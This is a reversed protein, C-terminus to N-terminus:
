PDDGAALLFRDVDLLGATEVVVTTGAEEDEEPADGPEASGSGPDSSRGAPEGAVVDELGDTGRLIVVLAEVLPHELLRTDVDEAAVGVDELSAELDAPELVHSVPVSEVGRVVDVDMAAPQRDGSREFVVLKGSESGDTPFHRRPDVVATIEGRLDTVGRIAEPSRPIRTTTSPPDAITKVDDVAVALRYPGLEVFVFREREEPEDDERVDRDDPDDLSIGLLRDPLEASM